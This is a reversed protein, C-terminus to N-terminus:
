SWLPCLLRADVNYACIECRVKDYLRQLCKPSEYFLYIIYNSVLFTSRSKIEVMKGESNM